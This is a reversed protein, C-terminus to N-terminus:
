VQPGFRSSSGTLSAIPALDSMNETLSYAALASFGVDNGGISMLVVDIARKRSQPPCWTKIIRQASIRTSGHAYTPLAYSASQSRPGRCILDSLQDLQARVKGGPVESAGERAAMDLFLGETVEAGSCTFTAFTISRHRNELALELAVRFPYGYQSRHCDRSLWRASAKEFAAVFEPSGSAMFASPRRTTWSGGRCCGPITGITAPPLATARRPVSPRRKRRSAPACCPRSTCWKAGPASSCRGIRIAKARRLRIASRWSSSTRSWWRRSPSNAGM